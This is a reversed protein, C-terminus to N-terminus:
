DITMNEDTLFQIKKSKKFCLNIKSIKVYYYIKFIEIIINKSIKDKWFLRFWLKGNPIQKQLQSKVHGKIKTLKGNNQIKAFIQIHFLFHLSIRNKEYM